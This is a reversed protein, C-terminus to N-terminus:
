IFRNVQTINTTPLSSIMTVWNDFYEQDMSASDYIYYGDDFIMLGNTDTIYMRVRTDELTINLIMDKLQTPM